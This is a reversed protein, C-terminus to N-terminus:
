KIYLLIEKKFFSKFDNEYSKQLAKVYRSVTSFNNCVPSMSLGVLPVDHSVQPAAMAVPSCTTTTFM